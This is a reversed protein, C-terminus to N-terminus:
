IRHLEIEVPQTIQDRPVPKVDRLIVLRLRYLVSPHYTTRLANWVDNQESFTQTVLEVTLRDVGPPLDAHTAREFTRNTQLYEIVKTLHDWSDDYGTFRAVFLVYLVLKLDPQKRQPPGDDPRLVYPEPSRM